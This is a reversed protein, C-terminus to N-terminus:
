KGRRLQTTRCMMEEGNNFRVHIFYPLGGIWEVKDADKVISIVTGKMKPKGVVKVKNGPYFHCKKIKNALTIEKYNPDSVSPVHRKNTPQDRKHKVIIEYEIM